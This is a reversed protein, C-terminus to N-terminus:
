GDPVKNIFRAYDNPRIMSWLFEESAQPFRKRLEKFRKFEAESTHSTGKKAMKRAEKTTKKMMEAFLKDVSSSHKPYITHEPYKEGLHLGERYRQAQDETSADWPTPIADAFKKGYDSLHDYDHVVSSRAGFKEQLRDSIAALAASALGKRQHKPVRRLGEDLTTGPQTGAWSIEYRLHGTDSYYNQDLIAEVSAVDSGTLNDIKGQNFRELQKDPYITANITTPIDERGKDEPRLEWDHAMDLERVRVGVGERIYGKVPYLRGTEKSRRFHPPVRVSLKLELREIAQGM